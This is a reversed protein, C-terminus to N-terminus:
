QVQRKYVDLHTYSVAKIWSSTSKKGWLYKFIQKTLRNDDMRYLYGFFLLRRKRMTETISGTSQYIEDNSRLKCGESIKRPGLIKRSIRKKLIELKDLNYNLALCESAYLWEPKVVTSYRSIKVNKSICRDRICM